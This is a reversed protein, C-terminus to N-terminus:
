YSPIQIGFSYIYAYDGPNGCSVNDKGRQDCDIIGESINQFEFQKGSRRARSVLSGWVVPRSFAGIQRRVSGNWGGRRFIDGKNDWDKGGDRKLGRVVGGRGCGDM